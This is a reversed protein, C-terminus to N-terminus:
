RQCTPRQSQRRGEVDFQCQGHNHRDRVRYDDRHREFQLHGGRLAGLRRDWRRWRSQDARAIGTTDVSLTDDGGSGTLSEVGTTQITGAVGLTISDTGSGGSVTEVRTLNLVNTGDALTLSDAGGQLDFAGAALAFPLTVNDAGATGTGQTAVVTTLANTTIGPAGDTATVTFVTTRTAGLGALNDTPDFALQRIGTQAANASGNFTYVGGGADTFGAAALSGATFVGETQDDLTVTLAVAAGAGLAHQVTFAAFPTVTSTDVANTVATAGGLTAENVSVQQTEGFAFSAINDQPIDPSAGSEIPPAPELPDTPPQGNGANGGDADSAGSDGPPFLGLGGSDPAPGDLEAVDASGQDHNEPEDFIELDARLLESLVDTLWDTDSVDLGFELLIDLPSATAAALAFGQLVIHAGDSRILVLDDGDISMEADQFGLAALDILEGAVVDVNALARDDEGAAKLDTPLAAQEPDPASVEHPPPWPDDAPTELPAEATGRGTPRLSPTPM